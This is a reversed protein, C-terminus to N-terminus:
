HIDMRGHFVGCAFYTPFSGCPDGELPRFAEPLVTKGAIGQLGSEGQKVPRKEWNEQM